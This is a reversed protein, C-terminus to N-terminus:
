VPKVPWSIDDPFGSQEPVGRLLNRYQQQASTMTRDSVAWWDTALLKQDREARAMMPKMGDHEANMTAIEEDSLNHEVGDIIKKVM